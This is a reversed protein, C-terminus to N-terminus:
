LHLGHGVLFVRVALVAFRDAENVADLFIEIGEPRIEGCFGFFLDFAKLIGCFSLEVSGDEAVLVVVGWAIAGEAHQGVNEQM